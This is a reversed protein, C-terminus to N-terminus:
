LGGTPEFSWEVVDIEVTVSTTGLSGVLNVAIVSTDRGAATPINTASGGVSVGDIYPIALSGTPDVEIELSTWNGAVPTVGTDYASEISNSRTVFQWRGSNVNDVLRFYAGDQADGVASDSFGSYTTFRNTGDSLTPIRIDARFRWTGGGFRLIQGSSVFVGESNAATTGRSLRLVGARTAVSPPVIAASGGSGGVTLGAALGSAAFFDERWVLKRANSKSPITRLAELRQTSAFASVYSLERWRMVGDDDLQAVFGPTLTQVPPVEAGGITGARRAAIASSSLITRWMGDIWAIVCRVRDIEFRAFPVQLFADGDITDSGNPFLAVFVGPTTGADGSQVSVLAGTEGPPLRLVVAYVDGPAWGSFDIVYSRGGAPVDYVDSALGVDFTFEDRTLFTAGLSDQANARAVLSGTTTGNGLGVEACVDQVGTASANWETASSQKDPKTFPRAPDNSKVVGLAEGVGVKPLTALGM